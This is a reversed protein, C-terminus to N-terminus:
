SPVKNRQLPLHGTRHWTMPQALDLLFAQKTTKDKNGHRSQNCYFDPSLNEDKYLVTTTVKKGYWHEIECKRPLKPSCSSQYQVCIACWHHSWNVATLVPYGSVLIVQGYWPSLHRGHLDLIKKFNDESLNSTKLHNCAWTYNKKNM